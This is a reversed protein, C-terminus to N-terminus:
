SNKLEERLKDQISNLLKEDEIGCLFVLEDKIYQMINKDYLFNDITNDNDDEDLFTDYIYSDSYLEWDVLDHFHVDVYLVVIPKNKFVGPHKLGIEIRFHKNTFDEKTGDFRCITNVSIDGFKKYM